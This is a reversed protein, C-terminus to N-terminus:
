WFEENLINNCVMGVFVDVIPATLLCTPLPWLLFCNKCYPGPYVCRSEELLQRGTVALLVELTEPWFVLLKKTAKKESIAVNEFM